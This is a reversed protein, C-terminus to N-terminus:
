LQRLSLPSLFQGIRHSSRTECINPGSLAYERLLFHFACAAWNKHIERASVGSM